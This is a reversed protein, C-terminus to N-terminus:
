DTRNTHVPFIKATYRSLVRELGSETGTCGADDARRPDVGFSLRHMFPDQSSQTFLSSIRGTVDLSLKGLLQDRGGVEDNRHSSVVLCVDPFFISLVNGQKILDTKAVVLRNQIQM